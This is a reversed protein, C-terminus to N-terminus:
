NNHQQQLMIVIPNAKRYPLHTTSPTHLFTHVKYCIRMYESAALQKDGSTVIFRMVIYNEGKKGTHHTPCCRFLLPLVLRGDDFRLEESGFLVFASAPEEVPQASIFSGTCESDKRKCRDCKQFSIDREDRSLVQISLIGVGASPMDHRTLRSSANCFFLREDFQKGDTKLLTRHEFTSPLQLHFFQRQSKDVLKRPAQVRLRLEEPVTGGGETSPTRPYPWFM